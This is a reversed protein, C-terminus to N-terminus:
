KQEFKKEIKKIRTYIDPLKKVLAQARLESRHDRAPFGSIVKGKEKVDKTVGSRGAIKVEDAIEVHDKISTSGGVIVFDGLTVSGALGSKGIILCGRGIKCNHAVHVQDDIKTGAGIVTAGLTARDVTSNAGIEVNEGVEVRGIQPIKVHEGDRQLYGYGDGGIVTNSHIVVNDGIKAPSQIKVGSFLRVNQGLHVNGEIYVGSEIIVGPEATVGPGIYAGAEVHVPEDFSFDAAIHADESLGRYSQEPEFLALLEPLLDELDDILVRPGSNEIELGSDVFVPSSTQVEGHRWVEAITESGKNPPAVGEVKRDEGVLTSGPIESVIESLKRVPGVPSHPSM